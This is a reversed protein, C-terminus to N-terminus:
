VAKYVLDHDRVPEDVKMGISMGQEALEIKDHEVQMSAVKQRFDTTHGKIHVEDGVKISGGIVEVVAVSIKPFYHNVKGVQMEEQQEM